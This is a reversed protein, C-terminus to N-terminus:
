VVARMKCGNHYGIFACASRAFATNQVRRFSDWTSEDRNGMRAQIEPRSIDAKILAKLASIAQEVINLFPSYQPLKELETNDGPNGPDNHARAGDYIFIVTEDPDLNLRSQVLFDRFREGNMGRLFATHNVLGTVPSIALAVTVNRGRQGCVQRYAREGLRARGHSRATWINYGCEGVFVTHRLVAHNMFWNACQHRREIVDPRNRDAPLPRTLKVRFLM